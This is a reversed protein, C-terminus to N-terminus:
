IEAYSRDPFKEKVEGNRKEIQEREGNLSIFFMHSTDVSV